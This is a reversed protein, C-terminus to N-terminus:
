RNFPYENIWNFSRGTLNFDEKQLIEGTAKITDNKYITELSFYKDNKTYEIKLIDLTDQYSTLKLEKKTTDIESKYFLRTKDMTQIEANGVNELILYSWRESNNIDAPISDNNKEFHNIKFLGYM